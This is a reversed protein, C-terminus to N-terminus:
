TSHLNRWEECSSNALNDSPHGWTSQDRGLSCMYSQCKLKIGPMKSQSWHGSSDQPWRVLLQKENHPEEGLSNGLTYNNREHSAMSPESM